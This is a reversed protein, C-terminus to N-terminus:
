ATPGRRRLLIGAVSAPLFGLMLFYVSLWIFAAGIDEHPILTVGFRSDVWRVFSDLPFTLVPQVSKVTFILLWCLVLAICAGLFGCRMGKTLTVISM